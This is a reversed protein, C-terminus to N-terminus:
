GRVFRAWRAALRANRCLRASAEAEEVIPDQWRAPSRSERPSRSHGIGLRGDVQRGITIRNKENQHDCGSLLVDIPRAADAAVDVREHSRNACAVWGRAKRTDDGESRLDPVTKAARLSRTLQM